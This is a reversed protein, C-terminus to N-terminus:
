LAGGHDMFYWVRRGERCKRFKRGDRALMKRAKSISYVWAQHERDKGRSGCRSKVRRGAFHSVVTTLDHEFRPQTAIYAALVAADPTSFKRPRGRLRPALPLQLQDM